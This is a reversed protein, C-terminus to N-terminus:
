TNTVPRVSGWHGYCRGRVGEAPPSSTRAEIRCRSRGQVRVSAAIRSTKASRAARESGQARRARLCVVEPDPRPASWGDGATIIATMSPRLRSASPRHGQARALIAAWGVRQRAVNPWRRRRQGRPARRGRSSRARASSMRLDGPARRGGNRRGSARPHPANSSVGDRSPSPSRTRVTGPSLPSTRAATLQRAGNGADAGQRNRASNQRFRKVSELASRGALAQGGAWKRELAERLAQSCRMARPSWISVGPGLGSEM